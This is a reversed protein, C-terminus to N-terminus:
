VVVEDADALSIDGSRDGLDIEHAISVWSLKTRTQSLTKVRTSENDTICLTRAIAEDIKDEIGLRSISGNTITNKLAEFVEARFVLEISSLINGNGSGVRVRTGASPQIIKQRLNSTSAETLLTVSSDDITSELRDLLSM